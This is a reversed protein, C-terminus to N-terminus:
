PTPPSILFDDGTRALLIERRHKLMQLRSSVQVLEQKQEASLQPGLHDLEDYRAQLKPIERDMFVPGIFLTKAHGGKVLLHNNETWVPLIGMDALEIRTGAPGYDKKIVSFKIILSDRQEGAKDPTLGSVYNRSQNSLFNGLSFFIVTNRKDRTLYTEIPQLVHPHHGIVAGAGAELVNHAIDVDQPNPATAYEIGWHISVILLDCEARAGKIADLVGAEDRGPAGDSQDPYPFFAVHPDSNKEPNRGGNLWRTMGLWGVKIGNKELIVPKWAQDANAGAGTFLLGQERLHDLSEFFGVHGQDFVHNNAFSVIKIGNFKLSQLLAIPADFQFPKSGRSHIPAIPTELNVFGFDAQRFVDAVGALLVDWGGHNDPAAASSTSADKTDPAASPQPAPSLQSQAVAAQTVAQHPIVDGAAAFNIRAIERPYSVPASAKVSPARYNRSILSVTLGAASLALVSLWAFSKKHTMAAFVATENISRMSESDKDL